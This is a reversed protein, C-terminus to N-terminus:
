FHYNLVLNWLSMDVRNITYRDAVAGGTANGKYVYLLQGTLGEMWGGFNYYADVNLQYYSPLGYKNRVFDTPDPLQYSGLGTSFMWRQKVPKKVVLNFAHVNAFGENRERPMFTFMPDRGWERPMLYRDGDQIHSYNLTFQWKSPLDIGVRGGYVWAQHGATLYDHTIGDAGPTGRQWIGQVGLRLKFDAFVRQYDSQLLLTNMLRDVYLNSFQLQWNPQLKYQGELFALYGAEIRGAHTSRQGSVNIGSPYVGISEGIGYWKVTSRPSVAYLFGGLLKLRSWEQWNIQVGEVLTPRMRGDQPNIFATKIHQKGFVVSSKKHSYKIYLDELRDMDEKEHPRELDFLGIEYRSGQGTVPDALSLDSSALNYNFFGSLGMQFGYFPASEYAIGMGAAHAFQDTLGAQNDTAMFFYRGHGYLTGNRFFQQLNRAEVSDKPRENHHEYPHVGQAFGSFPLWVAGFLLWVLKKM